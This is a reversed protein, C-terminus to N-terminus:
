SLLSMVWYKFDHITRQFNAKFAYWKSHHYDDERQQLLSLNLYDLKKAKEFLGEVIYSDRTYNLIEMNSMNFVIQAFIPDNEFIFQSRQVSQEISHALITSSDYNKQNFKITTVHAVPVAQKGFDLGLVNNEEIWKSNTKQQIEADIIKLHIWESGGHIKLDRKM